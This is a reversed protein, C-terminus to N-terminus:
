HSCHQWQKIELYLIINNWIFYSKGRFLTYFTHNVYFFYKGLIANKRSFDYTYFSLVQFIYTNNIRAGVKKFISMPRYVASM